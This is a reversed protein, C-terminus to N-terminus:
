FGCSLHSYANLCKRPGDLCGWFGGELFISLKRMKQDSSSGGLSVFQGNKLTKSSNKVKEQSGIIAIGTTKSKQVNQVCNACKTCM